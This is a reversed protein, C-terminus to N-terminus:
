GKENYVLMRTGLPGGQLPELKDEQPLFLFPPETQIVNFRQLRKSLLSRGRNMCLREPVRRPYALIWHSQQCAVLPGYDQLLRHM